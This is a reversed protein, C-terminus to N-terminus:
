QWTEECAAGELSDSASPLSMSAPRSSCAALHQPAHLGRSPVPLGPLPPFPLPKGTHKHALSNMVRFDLNRVLFIVILITSKSALLRSFSILDYIPLAWCLTQCVSIAIYVNIRITIKTLDNNHNPRFIVTGTPSRWPYTKVSRPVFM